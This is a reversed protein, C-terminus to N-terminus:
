KNFKEFYFEVKNNTEQILHYRKAFKYQTSRQNLSNIFNQILERFKEITYVDKAQNCSPCSPVLNEITDNEPNQCTGDPNRRIPILHDAHWIKPLPDGCYTCRGNYKQKVHERQRKSLKM